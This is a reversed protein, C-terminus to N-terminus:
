LELIKKINNRVTNYSIGSKKAIQFASINIKKKNKINEDILYCVTKLFKVEYNTFYLRNM